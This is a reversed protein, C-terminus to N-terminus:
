TQSGNLLQQNELEIAKNVMELVQRMTPRLKPDKVLCKEAISSLKQMSKESYKGKLRPDAVLNLKESGSCCCIWSISKLTRESNNQASPRRGTILEEIFIGYSWVDVKATLHGTQVYEPAAYGKTGVVTTSIHTRGDRPGERVFGFDSLKANMQSDLLINSPKFDRFITQRDVGAGEHLYTLGTAADKAIKLRIGWSLPAKSNASLHADLSGNPMYEYVLLWNSENGNDENCYGILKVLNQHKIKGLFNVETEWERLGKRGRKCRKVAVHISDFPHELRKIVGKHVSGFGGEGLFTSQDYKKTAKKLEDPTFVRLNSSRVDLSSVYEKQLIPTSGDPRLELQSPATYFNDVSRENTDDHTVYGISFCRFHFVM